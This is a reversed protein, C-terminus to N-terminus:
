HSFMPCSVLLQKHLVCLFFQSSKPLFLLLLLFDLWCHSNKTLHDSAAEAIPGSTAPSPKPTGLKPIGTILPMKFFIVALHTNEVQPDSIAERCIHTHTHSGGPVCLLYVFSCAVPFAELLFWLPSTLVIPCFLGHILLSCARIRYSDCCIIVKRPSLILKVSLCGPLAM